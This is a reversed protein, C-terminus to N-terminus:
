FDSFPSVGDNRLMYQKEAATFLAIASAVKASDRRYAAIFERVTKGNSLKKGLEADQVLPTLEQLRYLTIIAPIMPQRADILDSMVTPRERVWEKLTGLPKKKAASELWFTLTANARLKKDAALVQASYTDWNKVFQDIFAVPNASFLEENFTKWKSSIESWSADFRAKDYAIPGYSGNDLVSVMTGPEAMVGKSSSASGTGTVEDYPSCWVSHSSCGVLTAGNFTAVVFETGRVGLVTSPTRVQISANKGAVREVKMKLSGTLLKIDNAPKSQIQDQRIIATTGPVIQVTGTLGSAPEFAITVTSDGDTKVIDLNDIKTGIDVSRVAAGDRTVEVAGELYEIHGLTQASAVGVLALAVFLATVTKRM